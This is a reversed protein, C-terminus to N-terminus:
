NSRSNLPPPFSHVSFIDYSKLLSFLNLHPHNGYFCEEHEVYSTITLWISSHRSLLDFLKVVLCPTNRRGVATEVRHVRRTSLCRVYAHFLCVDGAPLCSERVGFPSKSRRKTIKQRPKTQWQFTLAGRITAARHQAMTPRPRKAGKLLFFARWKKKGKLSEDMLRRTGM